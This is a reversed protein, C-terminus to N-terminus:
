RKRMEGESKWHIPGVISNDKFAEELSKWFSIMDQIQNKVFSSSIRVRFLQDEDIGLHKLEKIAARLSAKRKEHILEINGCGHAFCNRIEFYQNIRKWMPHNSLIISLNKKLFIKSGELGTKKELFNWKINTAHDGFELEKCIDALGSEFRACAAIIVTALVADPFSSHWKEFEDQHAEYFSDSDRPSLRYQKCSADLKKTFEKEEKRIFEKVVKCYELLNNLELLNIVITGPLFGSSCWGNAKDNRTKQNMTSVM